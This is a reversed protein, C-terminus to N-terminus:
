DDINLRSGSRSPEPHEPNDKLPVLVGNGMSMAAGRGGLNQLRKEICSKPCWNRMFPAGFHTYNPNPLGFPEMKAGMNSGKKPGAAFTFISSGDLRSGEQPGGPLGKQSYNQSVKETRGFLLSVFCM